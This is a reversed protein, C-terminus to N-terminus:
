RKFIYRLGLGFRGAEFNSGDSLAWLPRWDLGINIPASPITYELGLTPRIAFASNDKGILVQPGFGINWDLGNAGPISKNYSYEGGLIVTNDAFLVMGQLANPGGISQKLAPGVATTGDGFDVFLGGATKYSQASAQNSGLIAAGLIFAGVFLKKM